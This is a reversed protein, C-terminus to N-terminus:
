PIPDVQGRNPLRWCRPLSQSVLMLKRHHNM